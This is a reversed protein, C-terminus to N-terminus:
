ILEFKSLSWSILFSAYASFKLQRDWQSGLFRGLGGRATALIILGKQHTYMYSKLQIQNSKVFNLCKNLLCINKHTSSISVNMLIFNYKASSFYYQFPNLLSQTLFLRCLNSALASLFVFDFLTCRTRPEHPNKSSMFSRVLWPGPTLILLIVNACSIIPLFRCQILEAEM